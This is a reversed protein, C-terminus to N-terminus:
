IVFGAREVDFWPDRHYERCVNVEAAIPALSIYRGPCRKNPDGSAGPLETHGVVLLGGNIPAWVRCIDRLAEYQQKSAPREDTNGVIAVALSCWNHRLAHAGKISLPLMQEVTADRDQLVVAHYPPRGRTPMLPHKFRDAIEVANLEKDPIPKPNAETRQSLSIRHVIIYKLHWPKLIRGEGDYCEATRDTIVM